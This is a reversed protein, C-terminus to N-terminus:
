NQYFFYGFPINLFKSLKELDKFTPQVEGLEWLHFKPFKKELAFAMDGARELVWSLISPNIAIHSDMKTNM